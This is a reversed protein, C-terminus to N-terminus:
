FLVGVADGRVGIAVERGVVDYRGRAKFNEITEFRYAIPLRDAFLRYTILLVSYCVFKM